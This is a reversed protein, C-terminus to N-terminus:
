NNNWDTHVESNNLTHKKALRILFPLFGISIFLFQWTKREGVVLKEEDAKSLYNNKRSREDQSFCHQPVIQGVSLTWTQISMMCLGFEASEHM